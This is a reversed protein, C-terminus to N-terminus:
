STAERRNNRILNLFFITVGITIYIDALNFVPWIGLDIFDIVCGHIVRDVLNSAAGSLIFILAIKEYLLKSKKHFFYILLFFIIAWALYFVGLSASISWALNKNCVSISSFIIKFSQDILVLFLLLFLLRSYNKM